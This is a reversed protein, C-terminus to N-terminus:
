LPLKHFQSLTGFSIRYFFFECKFHQCKNIQSYINVEFFGNCLYLLRYPIERLINIRNHNVFTQFVQTTYFFHSLYKNQGNLFIILGNLAWDNVEPAPAKISYKRPPLAGNLYQYMLGFSFLLKHRLPASGELFDEM